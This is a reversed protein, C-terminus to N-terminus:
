GKHGVWLPVNQGAVTGWKQDGRELFLFAIKPRTGRKRWTSAVSDGRQLGATVRNVSSVSSSLRTIDRGGLERRATM